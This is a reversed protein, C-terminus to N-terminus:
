LLGDLNILELHKAITWIVSVELVLGPSDKQFFFSRRERGREGWRVM